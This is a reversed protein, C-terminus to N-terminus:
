EGQWISGDPILGRWKIEKDGYGVYDGDVGEGSWLPEEGENWYIATVEAMWDKYIRIADAKDKGVAMRRTELKDLGCMKTKSTSWREEIVIWQGRALHVGMCLVTPRDPDSEIGAISEFQEEMLLDYMAEPDGEAEHFLAEVTLNQLTNLTDDISGIKLAQGLLYRVAEARNMGQRSRWAELSALTDDDLRVHVPTGTSPRGATM